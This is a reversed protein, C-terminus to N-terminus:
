SDVKKRRKKDRKQKKQSVEVSEIRDREPSEKKYASQRQPLLPLAKIRGIAQPTQAIKM